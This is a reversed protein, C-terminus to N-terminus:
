NRTQPMRNRERKRNYSKHHKILLARVHKSVRPWFTMVKEKQEDGEGTLVVISGNVAFELCLLRMKDCMEEDPTQIDRVADTIENEMQELLTLNTGSMSMFLVKRIKDISAPTQFLFPSGDTTPVACNLMLRMWHNLHPGCNSCASVIEHNAKFLMSMNILSSMFDCYQNMFSEYEVWMGLECLTNYTSRAKQFVDFTDFTNPFREKIYELYRTQLGKQSRKNADSSSQADGLVGHGAKKGAQRESANKAKWSETIDTTM